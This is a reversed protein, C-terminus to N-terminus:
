AADFVQQPDRSGATQGTRSRRLAAQVTAEYPDSPQRRHQLELQALYEAHANPDERHALLAAVQREEVEACLAAFDTSNAPSDTYADRHAAVARHYGVSATERTRVPGVEPAPIAAPDVATFSDAGRHAHDLSAVPLVRISRITDAGLKDNIQRCLQGGLLRLQAGYADSGPRLDLRGREADFAVAHVRGEYQPCLETFRALIDGGRVSATWGQESGLRELVAAFAQPDRGDAGRRRQTRRDPKTPGTGPRRGAKYAALAQRALDRGSPPTTDPM